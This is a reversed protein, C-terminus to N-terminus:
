WFPLPFPLGWPHWRHWHCVRRPGYYTWIIRCRHHPYYYYSPGGYFGHRHFHRGYYRYGGGHYGGFHMGGRHLGGVRFGGGRFGGGRFAGARFGGGHFGGGHFGGGHFGGGHFGGGHGGGGHGRVDIVLGESAQSAARAAGPNILSMADARQATAVSLVLMAFAAFGFRQVLSGKRVSISKM